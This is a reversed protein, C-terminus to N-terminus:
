KHTISTRVSVETQDEYFNILNSDTTLVQTLLLLMFLEIM